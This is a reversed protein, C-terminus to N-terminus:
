RNPVIVALFQVPADSCNAISHTSGDACFEADGPTLIRTEGNEVVTAEGSIIYYAEANTEHPHMGVSEGPSLTIVGLLEVRGSMEEPSFLYRFEPAGNGGRVNARHLATIENKTKLM